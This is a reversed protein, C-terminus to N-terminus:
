KKVEKWKWGKPILKKKLRELEKHGTYRSYLYNEQLILQKKTVNQTIRDIFFDYSGLLLTSELIPKIFGDDEIEKTLSGKTIGYSICNCTENVRIILKIKKM